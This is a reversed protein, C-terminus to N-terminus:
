KSAIIIHCAINYNFIFCISLINRCFCSYLNRSEFKKLKFLTMQTKKALFRVKLPHHVVIYFVASPM